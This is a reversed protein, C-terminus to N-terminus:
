ADLDEVVTYDTSELIRLVEGAVAQLPAGNLSGPFFKIDVLGNKRAEGEWTRLKELNAM